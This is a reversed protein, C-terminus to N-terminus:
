TLVEVRSLAIGLTRKLAGRERIAGPTRILLEMEGAPATLPVDVEVFDTRSGEIRTTAIAGSEAHRLTVEAGSQAVERSPWAYDLRVARVPRASRLGIASLGDSWRFHRGDSGVDAGYWGYILAGPPDGPMRVSDTWESRVPRFSLNYSKFRGYGWSAQFGEDSLPALAQGAIRRFRLLSSVNSLNWRWSRPFTGPPSFQRAWLEFRIERLFWMPMRSLRTHKLVTRIRNRETLFAKNRNILDAAGLGHYLTADPAPVVGYGSRRARLCFDVDEYYNFYVEDFGGIRDFIEKRATLGNGSAFLVEEPLEAFEIPEGFALDWGYGQRNLTGGLGNLLWPNGDLIARSAVVGVRPDGFPKLVNALWGPDAYADSDVFAIIEGRAHEVGFNRGGACGRNAGSRVIRLREEGAFMTAMRETSGDTSANDVLVIEYDEATQAMLCEICRGILDGSNFNLVVVSAKM